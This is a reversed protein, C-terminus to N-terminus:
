IAVFPPGLLAAPTTKEPAVGAFVVNTDSGTGTPQAHVVGATPAAPAIVQLIALRALAAVPVKTRVTFTFVLVANPVMMVSVAEIAAIVGSGVPPLLLALEFMATPALASKDIVLVSLGLGTM